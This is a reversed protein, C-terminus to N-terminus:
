DFSHNGRLRNYFSSHLIREWTDITFGLRNMMRFIRYKNKMSGMIDPAFEKCKRYQTGALSRGEKRDPDSLLTISFYSMLLAEIKRAVYHKGDTDDMVGYRREMFDLVTETHTHRKVQNATSVSQDCDGIRYEYIFLEMPTIANAFCCPFTAFAHDEYFVHEPLPDSHNQYFDTRYTIGHFTLARDFAKWDQLVDKFTYEKDFEQPFCRWNKVEGTSINITHYLTLVVDSECGKLKQIFSPLQESDVWDDADIVKLYKGTAAACGTNLAGGHGKNAQNILRVTEPYLDCYKTAVEPTSDKSGDNVVIIEIEHNIDPNLMSSICKDLYKESNYAPIVFTLLKM